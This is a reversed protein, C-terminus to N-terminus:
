LQHGFQYVRECKLALDAIHFHTCWENLPGGARRQEKSGRPVCLLSESPIPDDAVYNFVTTVLAVGFNAQTGGMWDYDIIAGSDLSNLKPSFSHM